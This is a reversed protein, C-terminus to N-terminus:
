DAHQDKSTHEQLFVHSQDKRRIPEERDFFEKGFMMMPNLFLENISIEKM